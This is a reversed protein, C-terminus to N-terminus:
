FLQDLFPGLPIELRVRRQPIMNCNSSTQLYNKIIELFTSKLIMFLYNKPFDAIKGIAMAKDTERDRPTTTVKTIVPQIKAFILFFNSFFSM